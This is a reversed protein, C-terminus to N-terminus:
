IRKKRILRDKNNNNSSDLQQNFQKTLLYIQRLFLLALKESNFCTQTRERELRPSSNKYM